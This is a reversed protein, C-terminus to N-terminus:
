FGSDGASNARQVEYNYIPHEMKRSCSRTVRHPSLGTCMHPSIILLQRHILLKHARPREASSEAKLTRCSWAISMMVQNPDFFSNDDTGKWLCFGCGYTLIAASNSRWIGCGAPHGLCGSPFSDEALKHYYESSHPRDRSGMNNWFKSRLLQLAQAWM